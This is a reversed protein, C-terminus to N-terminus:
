LRHCQHQRTPLPDFRGNNNRDLFVLNGASLTIPSFGFDQTLDIDSDGLADDYAHEFGNELVTGTKTPQAGSALAFVPTRIGNIAPSPDDVGNEGVTDDGLPVL